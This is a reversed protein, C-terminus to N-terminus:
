GGLRALAAQYNAIQATLYAPAEGTITASKPKSADVLNRYATRVTTLAQGLTDLAAKIGAKSDLALTKPLALGYLREAKTDTVAPTTRVITDAIGLAELADTGATGASIEIRGNLNRPKIQLRELVGYVTTSEAAGAKPPTLIDKAVTVTAAFGSAREIKRALTALTDAAEITVKKKGATGQVYFTDGARASTGAVVKNSDSYDITGQPLGLRDLVSAGGTAVAIAKPAATNGDANFRKEYEVAGTLPDIRALFGETNRVTGTPSVVSPTPDPKTSPSTGAVWVAGNSFAAATATDNGAGGFYTLRDSVSAGLNTELAAVFADTGGSHATNVTGADLSPNGSTGTVIVRGGQVALGTIEGGQIAGLDRTAELVPAGTPQLAYRRVM